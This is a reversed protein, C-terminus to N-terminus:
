PETSRLWRSDGMGPSGYPNEDGITRGTADSLQGNPSGPGFPWPSTAGFFDPWNTWAKVEYPAFNYGFLPEGTAVGTNDFAPRDISYRSADLPAADRPWSASAVRVPPNVSNDVRAFPDVIAGTNTVSVPKAFLAGAVEQAVNVAVSEARGDRGASSQQAASTQRVARTRSVFATAIIVLLVLIATVLVITNGRRARRHNSHISTSHM